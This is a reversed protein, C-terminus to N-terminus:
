NLILKLVRGCAKTLAKESLAKEKVGKEPNLVTKKGGPMILAVSNIKNYTHIGRAPVATFLLPM